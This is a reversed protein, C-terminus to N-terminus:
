DICLIVGVDMEASFAGELKKVSKFHSFTHVNTTLITDFLALNTLIEGSSSKLDTDRSAFLFSAPNAM